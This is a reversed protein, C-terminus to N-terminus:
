IIDHIISLQLYYIKMLELINGLMSILTLIWFLLHVLILLMLEQHSLLGGTKKRKKTKRKYYDFKKTAVIRRKTGFNHRKVVKVVIEIIEQVDKKM